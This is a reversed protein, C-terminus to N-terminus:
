FQVLLLKQKWVRRIDAGLSALMKELQEYGRDIFGVNNVVTKGKAVLGALVMSAGGRLDLADVNSGYLANVGSVVAKHKGVVYVRAGMKNLEDAILFRNEFVRENITTLGKAVCSLTLLLSQLDTAFKPYFGTSVKSISNLKKNNVIHIIDNKVQIQCGMSRLIKIFKENQEAGANTIKVDGGCIAVASMLTGSVIRDPIPTYEVGHLHPVGEITIKSTGAGKINAGMSNLFNALDVIEPEKACNFITTTGKLRTAFQILNETAGVSPLKLKVKGAHAHESSFFVFEGMEKVKVGLKKFCGIHIDIPRKGITCGGPMTLMVHGFRSLCSGLLFLSSRMTKSLQSDIGLDRVTSMNLNLNSGNKQVNVGLLTLISIMNSVDTINPCKKLTVIGNTLLCASMIPLVANKSTQNEIIGFLKNGGHIIFKNEKM